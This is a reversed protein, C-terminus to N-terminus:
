DTQEGGKRGSLKDRVPDSFFWDVGSSSTMADGDPDDFVTTGKQLRLGTGGLLPGSGDRLNAVREAYSRGSSWEELLRLLALDNALKDDDAGSDYATFGGILIDDGGNSVLRDAGAGGIVIDRANGGQLFDNGRGGIIIGGANSGNLHDDGDGGDLVAPLDVSGAVSVHDDGALTVVQIIDLGALPLTRKGESLFDAQVKVQGNGQQNITVQDPGITGVVQLSTLGGVVHIGVGTVFVAKVRSVEGTDDDRLTLLVPYIGGFQYAHQATFSGSGGAETVAAPAVTGDGWDVTVTHTDLTGVDTFTGSITVPEGERAPGGSTSSTSLSTLVPAVNKVLTSVTATAQGTDDDTLTLGIAYTDQPTGTPNDDLYQHTATFHTTGAAYTFSQPAGEGWDVVLTFTDQTGPDIIDGSLTVVGNEDIEPTVVVNAL